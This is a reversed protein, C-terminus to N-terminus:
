KAALVPQRARVTTVKALTYGKDSHACFLLNVDFLRWKRIFNSFHSGSEPYLPCPEPFAAARGEAPSRAPNSSGKM